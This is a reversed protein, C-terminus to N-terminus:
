GKFTVLNVKTKSDILIKILKVLHLHQKSVSFLMMNADWEHYCLNTVGWCYSVWVVNHLLSLGTDSHSDTRIEARCCVNVWCSKGRETIVSMYCAARLASWLVVQLVFLQQVTFWKVPPPPLPPARVCYWGTLITQFATEVNTSDLASTELFSLGNKEAPLTFCCTLRPEFIYCEM